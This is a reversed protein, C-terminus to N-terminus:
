ACLLLRWAVPASVQKSTYSGNCVTKTTIPGNSTVVTTPGKKGQACFCRRCHPPLLSLGGARAKRVVPASAVTSQQLAPNAPPADGGAGGAGGGANAGKMALLTALLQAVANPQQPQPQVRIGDALTAPLAARRPARVAQEDDEAESGSQSPTYESEMM